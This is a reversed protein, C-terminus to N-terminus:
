PEEWATWSVTGGGDAGGVMPAWGGEYSVRMTRDPLAVDAAGGSPLSVSTLGTFTAPLLRGPWGGVEGVCDESPYAVDVAMGGRQADTLGPDGDEAFFRPGAEDALLAAHAYGFPGVSFALHVAVADGVAFPALSGDDVAGDVDWGVTWTGGLDDVLRVQNPVAEDCRDFGPVASAGARHTLAGLETIGGVLDAETSFGDSEPPDDADACLARAILEVGPPCPEGGTDASDVRGTDGGGSGTDVAGTDSSDAPPDHPHLRPVCAALLAIVSGGAWTTASCADTCVQDWSRALDLTLTRDTAEITGSQGSRLSLSGEPGSFTVLHHSKGDIECDHRRDIRVSVGGREADTLGPGNQEFLALPGTDDSLVLALATSYGLATSAVRLSVVDGVGIADTSGEDVPGELDWGVTWTEGDGDVLRVQHAEDTCPQFGPVRTGADALAGGVETVEGAVLDEGYGYSSAVAATTEACVRAEIEAVDDCEGGGCGALVLAIV